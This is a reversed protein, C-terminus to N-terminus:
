ERSFNKLMEALNDMEDVPVGREAFAQRLRKEAEDFFEETAAHAIGNEEYLHAVLRLSRMRDFRVAHIVPALTDALRDVDMPLLPQIVAFTHLGAAHFQRLADFREEVPDAGSEFIRRMRDDDSPISFGVSAKPFRRLLDLDDLARAARTLIVPTFGTDLLVELCRRTIRHKREVPQYPDTLIPSLRVFGPPHNRAERALVEPANVKIDLYRGWPLKPLGELKRSLDGRAAVYCFDCGILCGVYPNIYYHGLGEPMLVREVLIERVDTRRSVAPRADPLWGERQAVQAAVVDVMGREEDDLERGAKFMHRAVVNFLRTRTYCETAEDREEFEILIVAGGKAMTVCLGQEADWNLLKWGFLFREARRLPAFLEAATKELTRKVRPVPM